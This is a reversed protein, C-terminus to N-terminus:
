VSSLFFVSHSPFCSLLASCLLLFCLSPSFSSLLSFSLFPFCLSPFYSSLFFCPPALVVPSFTPFCCSLSVSVLLLFSHLCLFNNPGSGANGDDEDNWFVLFSSSSSQLFSFLLLLFSLIFCPVNSLVLSPSLIFWPVLPLASCFLFCFASPFRLSLFFFWQGTLVVNRLRMMM